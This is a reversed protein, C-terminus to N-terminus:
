ILFLSLFSHSKLFLIILEAIVCSAVEAHLAPPDDDEGGQVPRKVATDGVGGHVRDDGLKCALEAHLRSIKQGEGSRRAQDREDDAESRAREDGFDARLLDIANRQQHTGRRNEGPRARRANQAVRDREDAHDAQHLNNLEDAAVRDDGVPEGLFLADGDAPRRHTQIDGGRKEHRNEHGQSRLEAIDFVREVAHRARKHDKRDDVEGCELVVGLLPASVRVVIGRFLAAFLAYDAGAPGHALHELLLFCPQHTEAVAKVTHDRDAKDGREDGRHDHAAIRLRLRQCHHGDRGQETEHAAIEAAEEVM